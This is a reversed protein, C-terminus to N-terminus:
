RCTETWVLCHLLVCLFPIWPFGAVAVSVYYFCIWSVDFFVLRLSPRLTFVTLLFVVTSMTFSAFELNFGPLLCFLCHETSVLTIDVPFSLSRLRCILHLYSLIVLLFHSLDPSRFVANCCDLVFRLPCCHM